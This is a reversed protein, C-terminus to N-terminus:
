KHLNKGKFSSMKLDFENSFSVKIVIILPVCTGHALTAITYMYQTEDIKLLM